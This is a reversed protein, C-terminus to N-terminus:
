ARQPFDSKKINSLAKCTEPYKALESNAVALYVHCCRPFEREFKFSFVKPTGNQGTFILEEIAKSTEGTRHTLSNILIRQDHHPLPNGYLSIQNAVAAFIKDARAKTALASIESHMVEALKAAISKAKSEPVPLPIVTKEPLRTSILKEFIPNASRDLQHLAQNTLPFEELGDKEILYIRCQNAKRSKFEFSFFQPIGDVKGTLVDLAEQTTVEFNDKTADAAVSGIARFPLTNQDKKLKLILRSLIRDGFEITNMAERKLIRAKRIDSLSIRNPSPETVAKQQHGTGDTQGTGEWYDKVEPVAAVSENLQTEDVDVDSDFNAFPMRGKRKQGMLAEHVSSFQLLASNSVLEIHCRSVEDTDFSVRFPAPVGELRGELVARVEQVKILGCYRQIESSLNENTSFRLKNSGRRIVYRVLELTIKEANELRKRIARAQKKTLWYEPPQQEGPRPPQSHTAAVLNPQSDNAIHAFEQGQQLGGSLSLPGAQVGNNAGTAQHKLLAAKAEEWNRHAKNFIRYRSPWEFEESLRYQSRESPLQEREIFGVNLLTGVLRSQFIPRVGTLREIQIPDALERAADFDLHHILSALFEDFPEIREFLQEPTSQVFSGDIMLLRNITELGFVSRANNACYTLLALYIDRTALNGARERVNASFVRLTFGRSALEGVSSAVALDLSETQKKEEIVISQAIENLDLSPTKTSPLATQVAVLRARVKKTITSLPQHKKRGALANAEQDLWQVFANAEDVYPPATQMWMEDFWAHLEKVMSQDDILVGMETRALIGTNTLNASGILALERGIVTKAHIAPFHHIRDLNERIFSWAGLRARVSLSSLWAEIDSILTWEGSTDLIRQLYGIGIYPSVIKIDGQEAVKLIADDFPSTKQSGGPQHYILKTM